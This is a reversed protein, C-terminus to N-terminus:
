IRRQKKKKKKKKKQQQPPVPAPEQQSIGDLDEYLQATEAASYTKVPAAHKGGTNTQFAQTSGINWDPEPLDADRPDIPPAAPEPTPTPAAHSIPASNEAAHSVVPVPEEEAAHSVPPRQPPKAAPRNPSTDDLIERLLADREQSDTKHEQDM